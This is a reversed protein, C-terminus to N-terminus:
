SGRLPHVLHAMMPFRPFEQREGPCDENAQAIGAFSRPPKADPIAHFRLTAM